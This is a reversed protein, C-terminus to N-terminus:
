LVSLVSFSVCMDMTSSGQTTYSDLTSWSALHWHGESYGWVFWHLTGGQRSSPPCPFMGGHLLIPHVERLPCQVRGLGAFWTYYYLTLVLLLARYITELVLCEIQITEHNHWSFCKRVTLLWMIAIHRHHWHQHGPIYQHGPIFYVYVCCIYLCIYHVIIGTCSKSGTWPNVSDCLAVCRHVCYVRVVCHVHVGCASCTFFVMWLPSDYSGFVCCGNAFGQKCSLVVVHPQVMM